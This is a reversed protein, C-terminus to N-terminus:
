ALNVVGAAIMKKFSERLDAKAEDLTDAYTAIPVGRRVPERADRHLHDVALLLERQRGARASLVPWRWRLPFRL